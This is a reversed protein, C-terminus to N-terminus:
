AVLKMPNVLKILSIQLRRQSQGNCFSKLLMGHITCLGFKEYYETERKHAISHTISSAKSDTRAEQGLNNHRCKIESLCMLIILSKHTQYLGQNIGRRESAAPHIWSIYLVHMLLEGIIRRLRRPFLGREVSMLVSHKCSLVCTSSLFFFCSLSSKEKPMAYALMIM